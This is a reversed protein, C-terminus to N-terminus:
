FIDKEFVGVRENENGGEELLEMGILASYNKSIKKDYIGLIVNKIIREKEDFTTLKIYEPKIGLLMGNQKGISKFPILRMKIKSDGGKIIDDKNKYSKEKNNREYNDFDKGIENKLKEINLVKEIVSKEIIIVSEKTLPDKLTNGSDVFAKTKIIKKCMKIELECILEKQKMLRKNNKFSYQIILFGIAGAIITVKMPYTGILVGNKYTISQPKILYLLAWACGGTAFSVLYFLILSKCMNRVNQPNFAVYIMIVSLLIKMLINSYIPIINLYTIIAYIAGITGSILLKYSKMKIKQVFGTGFLIIYNMLLNEIFVIDLYITM